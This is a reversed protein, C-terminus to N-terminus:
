LLDCAFVVLFFRNSHLLFDGNVSGRGWGLSSFVLFNAHFIIRLWDVLLRNDHM